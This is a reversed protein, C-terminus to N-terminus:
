ILLFIFEINLFSKDGLLSLHNEYYISSIDATRENSDLNEQALFCAAVSSLTEIKLCNM